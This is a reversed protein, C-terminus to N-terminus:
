AGATADDGVEAQDLFTQVAVVRQFVSQEIVAFSALVDNVVLLEFFQVELVRIFEVHDVAERAFIRRANAVGALSAYGRGQNLLHYGIRAIYEGKGATGTDGRVLALCGACFALFRNGAEDLVHDLGQVLVTEAFFLDFLFAPALIIPRARERFSM